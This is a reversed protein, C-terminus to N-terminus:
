PLYLQIQHLQLGITMWGLAILEVQAGIIVGTKIDGLAIGILTATVLPRHTQFEESASGIGCISAFLFILLAQTLSM